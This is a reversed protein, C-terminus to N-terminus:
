SLRGVPKVGNLQPDPCAELAGALTNVLLRNTRGNCRAAAAANVALPPHMSVHMLNRLWGCLRVPSWDGVVDMGALQGGAMQISKELVARVEGLTLRGSDWNVMAEESGMVDKDLSIYLPRHRLEGALPALLQGIRGLSAPEDPQARLPTNEVGRWSGGVFRRTAPWVRIKGARLMSWPALPRYYNDFDVDGGLHFITHVHPLRAAHYLWTGCHLFPVGRMWDPHNDLVLLNIPTRLQRVLALSVHHFDGSGYFTLTPGPTPAAALAGALAREFARFRGFSCALRILEGWGPLPVLQPKRATMADQAPLSGDLDLIRLNM